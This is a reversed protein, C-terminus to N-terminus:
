MSVEEEILLKTAGQPLRGHQDPAPAAAARWLARLGALWGACCPWNVKLFVGMNIQRLRLLQLIKKTKPDIDNVGRIRIQL